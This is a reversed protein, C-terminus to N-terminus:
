KIILINKLNNKSIMNPLQYLLWKDQTINYVYNICIYLTSSPKPQMIYM